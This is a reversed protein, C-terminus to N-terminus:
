SFRQDSLQILFSSSLDLKQPVESISNTLWKINLQNGFEIDLHLLVVKLNKEKLYEGGRLLRYRMNNTLGSLRIGVVCVQIM